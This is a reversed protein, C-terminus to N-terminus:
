SERRAWVSCGVMLPRNWWALAIRYTKPTMVQDQLIRAQRAALGLDHGDGFGSHAASTSDYSSREDRLNVQPQQARMTCTILTDGGYTAGEPEEM